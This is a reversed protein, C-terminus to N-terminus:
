AGAVCFTSATVMWSAAIGGTAEVARITWQPTSSPYNETVVVGNAGGGTVRYASGLARKGAPCNLVLVKPSSSDQATVASVTVIGNLGSMVSAPFKANTGLALLRGAKPRRAAHIGDVRDSNLAFRAKPVIADRAAQGIPTIGAVAVVLATVSLVIPLRAKM